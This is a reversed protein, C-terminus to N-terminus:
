TAAFADVMHPPFKAHRFTPGTARKPLVSGRLTLDRLATSIFHTQSVVDDLQGVLVPAIAVAHYGARQVVCAPMHVVFPDLTDPSTFPQFNWLASSFPVAKASRRITREDAVRVALGRRTTHSRILGYQRHGPKDSM